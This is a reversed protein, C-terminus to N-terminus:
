AANADHGEMIWAKTSACYRITGPPLRRNLEAMDIQAQSVSSGTMRALTSRMLRGEDRILRAATALRVRAPWRLGDWRSSEPVTDADAIM